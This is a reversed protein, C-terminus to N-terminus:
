EYRKFIDLLNKKLVILNKENVIVHDCYRSKKNDSLQKSNLINFLKKDGGKAKFRRLRLSKKAKIFFIVDFKKMLRSEILLPIEFFIFKKKKYKKMFRLMEKRVIPHIIKELKKFNNKDKLIKKKLTSKLKSQNKIYFNKSIVKKFNKKKYLNKVVLDASFLPGKNASLIKSATSKGSALSGTIGFKKM